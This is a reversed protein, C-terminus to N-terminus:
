SATKVYPRELLPHVGQDDIQVFGLRAYLRLAPNFREVHITVPKAAADAEALLDSLHV